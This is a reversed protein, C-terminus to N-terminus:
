VDSVDLPLDPYSCTHTGLAGAEETGLPGTEPITTQRRLLTLWSRGGIKWANGYKDDLKMGMEVKLPSCSVIVFPPDYSTTPCSQPRGEITSERLDPFKDTENGVIDDGTGIASSPM